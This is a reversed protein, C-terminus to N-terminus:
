NKRIKKRPAFTKTPLPQKSEIANSSKEIDFTRSQALKGNIYVDARYNGAAWVGNPSADFNVQNQTGDTTYSVAVSKSEPKLGAAKVAILNMKVTVAKDSDLQILFHIPVDTTSFKETTEGAKGKGDDRALLIEEVGTVPKKDDDVIQGSVNLGLLLCLSILLVFKM